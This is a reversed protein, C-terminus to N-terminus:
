GISILLSEAQSVCFQNRIFLSKHSYIQFNLGSGRYMRINFEPIERLFCLEKIGLFFITLFQLYPNITPEKEHFEVIKSTNISTYFCFLITECTRKLLSLKWANANRNKRKEFQWYKNRKYNFEVEGQVLVWNSWFVNILKQWSKLLVIKKQKASIRVGGLLTIVILKM